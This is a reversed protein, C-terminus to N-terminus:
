CGFFGCFLRALLLGLCIGGFTGPNPNGYGRETEAYSRGGRSFENYLHVYNVNNPEMKAATRAHDLATINNGLGANAIASLYYWEATKNEIGALVNLAESYRKAAIYSRAASFYKGGSSYQGSYTSGYSGTSGYDDRYTYNFGFPGFDGFPSYYDSRPRTDAYASGYSSSSQYSSRSAAQGSRIQEYASNIESMKKKATEDGPNLDPHYKKALKLYAKRIEEESASPSVGLVEYPDRYDSM